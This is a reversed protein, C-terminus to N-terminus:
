GKAPRIPDSLGVYGPIEDKEMLICGHIMGIHFMVHRFQGLILELKTFNSEEPCTSLDSGRLNRLYNWTKEKIQLYYEHLQEKNLSLSALETNLAAIKYGDSRSDSYRYPNIFWQDMSHLMHYIQRWLPWKCIQKKLLADDIYDFLYEINKFLQGSQAIINDVINLEM